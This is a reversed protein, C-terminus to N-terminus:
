YSSLLPENQGPRVLVILLLFGDSQRESKEEKVEKGHM